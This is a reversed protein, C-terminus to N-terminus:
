FSGSFSCVPYTVSPVGLINFELIEFLTGSGDIDVYLQYESGYFKTGTHTPIGGVIQDSMEFGDSDVIQIEDSGFEVTLQTGDSGICINDSASANAWITVGLLLVLLIKM